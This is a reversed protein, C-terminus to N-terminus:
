SPILSLDVRYDWPVNLLAGDFFFAVQREGSNRLYVHTEGRSNTQVHAAPILRAVGSISVADTRAIQALSVKQVTSATTTRDRGSSVVIETLGYMRLTDGDAFGTRHLSDATSEDFIVVTDPRAVDQALAPRGVVLVAISLLVFAVPLPMAQASEFM